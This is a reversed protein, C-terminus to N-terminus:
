PDTGYCTVRWSDIQVGTLDVDCRIPLPGNPATQFCMGNWGGNLLDFTAAHATCSAGTATPPSGCTITGTVYENPIPGAIEARVAANECRFGSIVVDNGLHIEGDDVAACSVSFMVQPQFFSDCKVNPSVTVDQDLIQGNANIAEVRYSPAQDRAKAADVVINLYAPRAIATTAGVSGAFVFPVVALLAVGTRLRM